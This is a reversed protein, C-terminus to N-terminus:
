PKGSRMLGSWYQHQNSSKCQKPRFSNSSMNFNTLCEVIPLSVLLHLSDLKAVKMDSDLKELALAFCSDSFDKSACLCLALKEALKDRTIGQPDNPSPHFDIPFYCFFIEFMEESLHRLPYNAIFRPMFEFLFLLNRPDREADMAQIVGYIFDAGMAELEPQYNDSLHQILAFINSRDGRVQSQCPINAFLHQLIVAPSSRPLNKMKVISLLGVVVQPAVSHHDKMRDCFFTVIFKLQEEDLLDSPLNQLLDSLFKTGKLRIEVDKNTLAPGLEDVVKSIDEKHHVLAQPHFLSKLIYKMTVIKCFKCKVIHQLKEDLKNDNKLVDVISTSWPFKM